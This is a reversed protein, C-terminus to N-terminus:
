ALQALTVGLFLLRSPIGAPTAVWPAAHQTCADLSANGALFRHVQIRVLALALVAGAGAKGKVSPKQFNHIGALSGRLSASRPAGLVLEGLILSRYHPYHRVKWCAPGKARVAVKGIKGM